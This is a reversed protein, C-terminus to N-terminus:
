TQAWLPYSTRKGAPPAPQLPVAALPLATDLPCLAWPSGRPSQGGGSLAEGPGRGGNAKERVTWYIERIEAAGELDMEKCLLAMTDLAREAMPQELDQQGLHAVINRVGMLEKAWTRCNLPLLFRFVDNM